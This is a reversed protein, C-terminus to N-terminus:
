HDLKEAADGDDDKFYDEYGDDGDDDPRVCLCLVLHWDSLVLGLEVDGDVVNRFLHCIKRCKRLIMTLVGFQDLTFLWM